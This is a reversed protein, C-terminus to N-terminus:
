PPTIACIERFANLQEPNLLGEYHYPRNARGSFAENRLVHMLFVDDFTLLCNQYGRPPPMDRDIYHSLFGRM